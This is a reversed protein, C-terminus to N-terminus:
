SCPNAIDSKVKDASSAKGGLKKYEKFHADRYDRYIIMRAALDREVALNRVGSERAIEREKKQVLKMKNMADQYGIVGQQNDFLAYQPTAMCEKEATFKSQREAAKRNSEKLELGDKYAKDISMKSWDAERRANGVDYPRKEMDVANVKIQECRWVKDHLFSVTDETWETAKINFQDNKARENLSRCDVEIGNPGVEVTDLATKLEAKATEKDQDVAKSGIAAEIEKFLETIDANANMAFLSLMSAFIMARM